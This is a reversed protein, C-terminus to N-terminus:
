GREIIHRIKPNHTVYEQNIRYVEKRFNEQREYNSITAPEEPKNFYWTSVLVIAALIVGVCIIDIIEEIM